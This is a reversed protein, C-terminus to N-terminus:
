RWGLDAEGPVAVRPKARGGLPPRDHGIDYETNILRLRHPVLRYGSVVSPVRVDRWGHRHCRVGRDADLAPLPGIRLDAVVVGGVVDAVHLEVATVHEFAGFGAVQQHDVDEVQARHGLLDAVRGPLAPTVGADEGLLVAAPEEGVV